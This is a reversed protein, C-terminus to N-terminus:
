SKGYDVGTRLEIPLQFREISQARGTEADIKVIVGCAKIDHEAVDFHAPMATRLKKLVPAKERGLVSDYPGTMGLDTIYATGQPLIREDATQVHTHTGVLASVRGDLHWGMAIKESTAEGHMDVLIIRAQNSAGTLIEDAIEFPCRLPEMFVRGMLNMVVIRVGARTTYLGWGKGDATKPYNAPRLVRLEHIVGPFEKNRFIHDGTTVVDAGSTLIKNLTSPTLGSGSAANEGNVVIFDANHKARLEPIAQALGARGPRGVVDGFFLVTLTSMLVKRISVQEWHYVIGGRTDVKISRPGGKGGATPRVSACELSRGVAPPFPHGREM